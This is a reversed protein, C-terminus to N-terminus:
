SSRKISLRKNTYSELLSNLARATISRDKKIQAKPLNAYLASKEIDAQPKEVDPLLDKHIEKLPDDKKLKPKGDKYHVEIDEKKWSVSWRKQGPKIEPKGSLVLKGSDDLVEIKEISDLESSSKMLLKATSLSSVTYKTISNKYGSPKNYQLVKFSM